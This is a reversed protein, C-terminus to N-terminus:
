IIKHWGPQPSRAEFRARIQRRDLTHVQNLAAVAEAENSATFGTIGHEIIEPVSGHNYAIVPTGCAMADIMALGFPEPWDTPMLLAKAGSLFASKTDDNIEGVGHHLIM